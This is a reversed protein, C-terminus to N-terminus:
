KVPITDPLITGTLDAVTELQLRTITANTLNAGRMDSGTLDAGKFNAGTLDTQVLLASTLNAKTLVAFKMDARSLNAQSLNAGNFNVSRLDANSLNMGFFDMKTFDCGALPAGPSLASYNGEDNIDKVVGECAKAAKVTFDPAAATAATLTMQAVAATAANKAQMKGHIATAAADLHNSELEFSIGVLKGASKLVDCGSVFVVVSFIMIFLLIFRKMTGNPRM